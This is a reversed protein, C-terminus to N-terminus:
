PYVFILGAEATTLHKDKNNAIEEQSRAYDWVRLDKIYGHWKESYDPNAGIVLENTNIPLSTQINGASKEKSANVYFQYSGNGNGAPQDNEWYGEYVFNGNQDYYRGYGAEGQNWEGEYRLRGNQDYLKGYGDYVGNDWGGEYRKKGNQDYVIGEGDLKGKNWGGEYRMKQNQDYLTGEEDYEGNDWQGEYRLHNNQDYSKGYGSYTIDERAGEDYVIEQNQDYLTVPSYSIDELNDKYKIPGNPPYLVDSSSNGGGSGSDAQFEYVVAIHTWGSLDLKSTRVTQAGGNNKTYSDVALKSNKDIYVKFIGRRSLLTIPFNAKEDVKVWAEITIANSIDFDSRYDIREHDNVGDFYNSIKKKIQISKSIDEIIGTSKILLYDDVLKVEDIRYDGEGLSQLETTITGKDYSILAVEVGGEALLKAKEIKEEKETQNITSYIINNMTTILTIAVTMLILVLLLASGEEQKIQNYIM